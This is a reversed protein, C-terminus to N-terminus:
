NPMSSVCVLESCIYVKMYIFIGSCFELLKLELSSAILQVAPRVSTVFGAHMACFEDGGGGM